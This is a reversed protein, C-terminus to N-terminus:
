TCQIHSLYKNFWIGLFYMCCFAYRECCCCACCLTSSSMGRRQNTLTQNTANCAVTIYHNCGLFVGGRQTNCQCFLDIDANPDPVAAVQKRQIASFGNTKMDLAIAFCLFKKNEDFKVQYSTGNPDDKENLMCANQM